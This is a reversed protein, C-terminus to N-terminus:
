SCSTQWQPVPVLDRVKIIVFQLICRKCLLLFKAGPKFPPFWCTPWPHKSPPKSELLTVVRDESVEWNPSSARTNGMDMEGLELSGDESETMQSEVEFEYTNIFAILLNFFQYIVYAEYCDRVLDFYLAQETYHLSLWSCLSYIPVMLLIRVIHRQLKPQTYNRLHRVILCLSIFLALFSFLGAVLWEYDFLEAM